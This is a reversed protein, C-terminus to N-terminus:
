KRLYIGGGKGWDRFPSGFDEKPVTDDRKLEEIKSQINCDIKEIRPKPRRWGNDLAPRIGYKM